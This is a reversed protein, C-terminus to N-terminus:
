DAGAISDISRRQQWLENAASVPDINLRKWWLLEGGSRHLDNHHETCLPVVFEDSVKLSLGRSQAFTLHHPHSPVNKCV